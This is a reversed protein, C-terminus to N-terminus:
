FKAALKVYLNSPEKATPNATKYDGQFTEMQYFVGMNVKGEALTWTPGIMMKSQTEELTDNYSDYGTWFHAYINTDSGAVKKATGNIGMVMNNKPATGTEVTYTATHYGFGADFMDSKYNVGASMIATSRATSLAVGVPLVPTPIEHQSVTASQIWATVADNFKYDIMAGNLKANDDTDVRAGDEASLSFLTVGLANFKMGYSVGSQTSAVAFGEDDSLPKTIWRNGTSNEMAYAPNDQIGMKLTDTAMLVGTGVFHAEPIYVKNAGDAKFEFRGKFAWQDNFKNSVIIRFRDVDTGETKPATETLGQLVSKHTVFAEANMEIAALAPAATLATALVLLLTKKM